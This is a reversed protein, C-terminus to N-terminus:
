VVQKLDNHLAAQKNDGLFSNALHLMITQCTVNDRNPQVAMFQAYSCHLGGRATRCIPKHTAVDQNAVMFYPYAAELEQLYEQVNVTTSGDCTGISDKEEQM